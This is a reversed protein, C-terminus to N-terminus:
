LWLLLGLNCSRSPTKIIADQAIHAGLVIASNPSYAGVTVESALRSLAPM